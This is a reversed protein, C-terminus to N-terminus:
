SALASPTRKRKVPANRVEYELLVIGSKPYVRHQKLALQNRKAGAPLMPIGGGLLVPIVAIEVSDVVGMDLLSRFLEGGGFLWIDKGPQAKLEEISEKVRDNIITVKPYQEPRLTSSVVVVRPGQGDGPPMGEFTKRGMLLTDFQEFLATFDIDPDMTIWDYEGNPGAIYGDLSSAVQYRVRRVAKM